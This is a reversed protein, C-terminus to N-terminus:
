LDEIFAMLSPKKVGSVMACTEPETRDASFLVFLNM